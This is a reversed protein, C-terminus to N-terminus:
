VGTHYVSLVFGKFSLGTRFVPLGEVSQFFERYDSFDTSYHTVADVNLKLPIPVNFEIHVQEFWVPDDGSPGRMEFERVFDFYGAIDRDPQSDGIQFFLFDRACEVPVAAYRKFVEWAATPDPHAEDVGAIRLMERLLSESDEPTMHQTIEVYEANPM